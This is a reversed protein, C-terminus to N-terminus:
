RQRGAAGALYHWTLKVTGYIAILAQDGTALALQLAMLALQTM